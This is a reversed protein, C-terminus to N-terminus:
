SQASYDQEAYTAQIIDGESLVIGTLTIIGTSDMTYDINPRLVTQGYNILLMKHTAPSFGAVVFTTTNDSPATYTTNAIYLNGPMKRIKNIEATLDNNVTEIRTALTSFRTNYDNDHDEISQTLEDHVDTIRTNLADDAEEMKRNTDDFKNNYDSWTDEFKQNYDTRLETKAADIAEDMHANSVTIAADWHFRSTADGTNGVYIYQDDATYWIDGIVLLNGTEPDYGPHEIPRITVQNPTRGLHHRIMTEGMTSPDVGDGEIPQNGFFNAEGHETNFIPWLQTVDALDLQSHSMSYWMHADNNYVLWLYAGDQYGGLIPSGFCDVIPEAPGDILKMTPANALKDGHPFKLRVLLAYHNVLEGYSVNVLLHQNDHGVTTAVNFNPVDIMAGKQITFYISEGTMLKEYQLVLQNLEDVRYDVNPVLLKNDRIVTLEDTRYEYNPVPIVFVDDEGATYSEHYVKVSYRYNGTSGWNNAVRTTPKEVLKLFHFTLYDGKMLDFNLQVYTGDESRTYDMGNRLITQGYNLEMYNSNIADIPVRVVRINDDEILTNIDCTEIDYVISRNTSHSEYSTIRFHLIDGRRLGFQTLHIINKTNFDYEYDLGYRLITQGYNVELSMTKRDFGPILITRTDDEPAEYNYDSAVPLMIKIVDKYEDASLMTWCDLKQNWILFLTSGPVQGGPIADGSGSVIPKDGSDNYNLTPEADVDVNVTLLLPFGDILPCDHIHAVLHKNDYAINYAHNMHMHPNIIHRDYKRLYNELMGGNDARVIFESTTQPYLFDFDRENKNYRRMRVYRNM